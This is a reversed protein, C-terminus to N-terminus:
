LFLGLKTKMLKELLAKYKELEQLAQETEQHGQDM